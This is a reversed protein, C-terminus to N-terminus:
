QFRLYVSISIRTANRNGTQLALPTQPSGPKTRGDQLGFCLNQTLFWASDASSPPAAHRREVAGNVGRVGTLQTISFFFLLGM